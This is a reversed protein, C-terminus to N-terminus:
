ACQCMRRTLESLVVSRSSASIGILTRMECLLYIYSCQVGPEHALPQPGQWYPCAHNRCAVGAGDCTGHLFPLDPHADCIWGFNCSCSRPQLRIMGVGVLSGGWPTPVFAASFGM